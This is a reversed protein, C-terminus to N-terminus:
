SHNQYEEYDRIWGTLDIDAEYEINSFAAMQSETVDTCNVLRAVFSFITNYYAARNEFKQEISLNNNLSNLYNKQFEQFEKWVDEVKEGSNIQRENKINQIEMEIVNKKNEWYNKLEPTIDDCELMREIYSIASEKEKITTTQDPVNKDFEAFVDEFKEGKTETKTNTFDVKDFGGGVELWSIEKQDPEFKELKNNSAKGEIGFIRSIPLM